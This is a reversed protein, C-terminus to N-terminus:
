DCLLHDLTAPTEPAKNTPQTTLHWTDEERGQRGDRAGLQRGVTDKHSDYSEGSLLMVLSV